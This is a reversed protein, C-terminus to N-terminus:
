RRGGFNFYTNNKVDDWNYFCEDARKASPNRVNRIEMLANDIFALM